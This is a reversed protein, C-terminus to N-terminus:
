VAEDELLSYSLILDFVAPAVADKLQRVARSKATYDIEFNKRLHPCVFVNDFLQSLKAEDEYSTVIAANLFWDPLLHGFQDPIADKVPAICAGHLSNLVAQTTQLPSQPLHVINDITDDESL